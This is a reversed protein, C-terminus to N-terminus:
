PTVDMTIISDLPWTTSPEMLSGVAGGFPLAESILCNFQMEPNGAAIATDDAQVTCAVVTNLIAFIASNAGLALALSFVAVATFTPKQTLRRIAYRSDQILGEM